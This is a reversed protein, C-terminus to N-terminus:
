EKARTTFPIELDVSNGAKDTAGNIKLTVAAEYGIDEGTKYELTVTQDGDTWEAIRWALKEGEIEFYIDKTDGTDMPESFTVTVTDKLDDPELDTLNSLDAGLSSGTIEPPVEDIATVVVGTITHTGATGDCYTFAIAIDVTSGPTLGVDSATATSGKLEAATGNITVSGADVTGGTFTVSVEGNAAMEAGDAPTTASVTVVDECEEESEGCGVVWVMALMIAMLVAFTPFVKYM